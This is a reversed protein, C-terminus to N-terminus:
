IDTNHASILDTDAWSSDSSILKIVLRRTGKCWPFSLAPSGAAESVDPKGVCVGPRLDGRAAVTLCVCCHVVQTYVVWQTGTTASVERRIKDGCWRTVTQIQFSTTRRNWFLTLIQLAKLKIVVKPKMKTKTSMGTWLVGSTGYLCNNDLYLPGTTGIWPAFTIHPNSSRWQSIPYHHVRIRSYPYAHFGHM